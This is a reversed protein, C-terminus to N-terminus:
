RPEQRRLDILKARLPRDVYEALIAIAGRDSQDRAVRAYAEIAGRAQEQAEELHRLAAVRQSAAQAAAARRLASVADLYGIGFELRGIWYDVYSAKAPLCRGRVLRAAALAKAYNDRVAALAPPLPHADWHKMFMGPVPFAFGLGYWELRVTAAELERYVTLMDDICPDGCAARLQDRYVSEPTVNKDWSARALYAVCPDHDGILWYRTSFGAWGHRRLDKTIEHLSGTALQPLLGVNDDHLTYILSAPVARAPIRGLVERRQLIRAPTYDVFNLTESGPPLLRPLVPFLEEAVSNLIFKVDPRRTGKLLDTETLLRDCFRLAVIDGKAEEVARETGGPYGSRKSAAALVENFAASGGLRYKRDLALWASSSQGSWQRFEPMGLLVYDVEPYTNVTSRLVATALDGLDRDEVLTQPGPVVSMAGLQHVTRADKLLTAFEPPFETITASIACEFGRRRAHAFIGHILKEGAASFESYSAKLPLDPNWFEPAEGFVRRGPMDATIPYHFDYWLTAKTRKIGHIELDLFPQYPYISVFVRNFRLKGLQDLVRRNEDLGWSEPGCAFDNVLRWQRVRLEPELVLDAEPFRFRGPQDPLLDGHLLYRVGWREVLEYVAWLTAAPSGGGIILAPTGQLTTRKLVIGQDSLKPWGNAGLARAVLPNTQPNGVLLLADARGSQQQQPRAKIAFLKDLYGALDDAAHREVDGPNPGLLIDIRSSSPIPANEPKWKILVTAGLQYQGYASLVHGDDLAVSAIHGCMGDVWYGDPRLFDFRDLEYRRDLNWSRGHDHSILADCGRRHSVLKGEQIDDRVVLTCVLNGDPLRQLNAHHRGAQYLFQLKSWTKGDDHSISVATGELSDDHPGEFYQPPMDTRLAAVLDGNSARVIAGESVGRLWRKGQHETSFKWGRPEVEDIWTMGGDTSRRFVVTADDRPHSKGPAYHWGLELIARAQGREDRDIWPNGELGFGLGGKTPPHEVRRTWTRGRDDSFIRQPKGGQDLVETVFSLRGGGLHALYQPRGRTGPVTTFSSWTAGGDKSFAIIPEITKSGQAPQKERSCLIALEGNDMQVLGFPMTFNSDPHKLVQRM